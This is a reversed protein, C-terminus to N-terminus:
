ILVFNLTLWAGYVRNGRWIGEDESSFRMELNGGAELM